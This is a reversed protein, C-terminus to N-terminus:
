CLWLRTAPGGLGSLLGCGRPQARAITQLAVCWNTHCHTGAGTEAFFVSVDQQTDHADRVHAFCSEAMNFPKSWQRWPEAGWMSRFVFDPDRLLEECRDCKPCSTAPPM